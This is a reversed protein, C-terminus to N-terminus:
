IFIFNAILVGFVGPLGLVGSSAVTFYNAPIYVGTFKTTLNIILLVALGSVANLFMTKLFKRSYLAFILLILATIGIIVIFFYKLFEM